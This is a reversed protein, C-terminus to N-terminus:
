IAEGCATGFFASGTARSKFSRLNIEKLSSSEFCLAADDNATMQDKIGTGGQIGTSIKKKTLPCLQPALVNVVLCDPDRRPAYDEVKLASVEACRHKVAAGGTAGPPKACPSSRSARSTFECRERASRGTM